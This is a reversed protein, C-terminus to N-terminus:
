QKALVAAFGGRPLMRLSLADARTVTGTTAAFGRGRDDDGIRTLKYSGEDLFALPCAGAAPSELGNIGGVYWDNGRRRAIVALSGPEGALYRTDDWAAPVARLFGKAPEPVVM